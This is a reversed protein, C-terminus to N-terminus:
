RNSFILAPDLITGVTGAKYRECMETASLALPAPGKMGASPRGSPSQLLTPSTYM